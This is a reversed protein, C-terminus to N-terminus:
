NKKIVIMTISYSLLLAFTPCVITLYANKLISAFDYFTTLGICSLALLVLLSLVVILIFFLNFISFIISIKRTGNDRIYKQIKDNKNKANFFFCLLSTVFCLFSSIGVMLFFIFNAKKINDAYQPLTDNASSQLDIVCTSYYNKSNFEELYKAYEDDSQYSTKSLLTGMPKYSTLEEKLKNINSSNLYALYSKTKINLMDSTTVIVGETYRYDTRYIKAVTFSEERGNIIIIIKNGVNVDYLKSFKYDIGVISGDADEESIIREKTFESYELDQLSDFILVNRFDNIGGTDVNLSLQSAKSVHSVNTNNDFGMIQENSAGTVLLDFRSEHYYSYKDSYESDYRNKDKLGFDILFCSIITVLVAILNIVILFMKFPKKNYSNNKSINM